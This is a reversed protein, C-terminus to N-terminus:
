ASGPPMKMLGCSFKLTTMSGVCFAPPAGDVSAAAPLGVPTGAAPSDAHHLNM